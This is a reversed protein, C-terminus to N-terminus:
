NVFFKDGNGMGGQIVNGFFYERTRFLKKETRKELEMIFQQPQVLKPLGKGTVLRGQISSKNAPIERKGAPIDRDGAPIDRDGAPTDKDSHELMEKLYDLSYTLGCVTCAAGKGGSKMELTGGCIECVLKM